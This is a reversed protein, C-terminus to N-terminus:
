KNKHCEHCLAILNTLPCFLNNAFKGISLYDTIKGAPVIHDIEIKNVVILCKTCQYKGKGIKCNGICQKRELSYWMWIKRLASRIASRIKPTM